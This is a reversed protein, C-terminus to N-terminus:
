LFRFVIPCNVIAGVSGYDAGGPGTVFGFEVFSLIQFEDILRSRYGADIAEETWEGLNVDWLPSYDTAITPIGGLVNFPSAGDNIAAALGQRQPNNCGVGGNAFVFIREVASFASDDNGVQIDRLGPAFTAGELAATDMTSTDMSLYLVPRGFSFGPVLELTVTENEMDIAVVSDHVRSYDPNGNPANIEAATTGFSIVPANYVHGGANVIRVLPTYLGSGVSGPQFRLPPFAGEGRGGPVVEREPTFDVTGADFLLLGDRMLTATRVGTGTASYNLKPAFNLGLGEANGADTTDTLIYWVNSGDSRMAGRYIPLTITREVEDLTGATLLQLPGVLSPNVTSPAPGFYTEPINAGIAPSAPEARCGPQGSTQQITQFAELLARTRVRSLRSGRPVSAPAEEAVPAPPPGFSLPNPKSDDLFLGRGGEAHAFGATTLALAAFVGTRLTFRNM